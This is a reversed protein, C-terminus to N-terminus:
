ANRHGEKVAAAILSGGFPLPVGRRLLTQELGTAFRAIAEAAPAQLEVDSTRGRRAPLLKRTIVM